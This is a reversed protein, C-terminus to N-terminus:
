QGIVSEISKLPLSVREWLIQPGPADSILSFNLEASDADIYGIDMTGVTQFVPPLWACGPCQSEFVGLPTSQGAALAESDLVVAWVPRDDTDYIYAAAFEDGGQRHIGLGWGSQDENFWQDTIDPDVVANENLDFFSVYEGFAHDDLQWTMLARDASDFSFVVNGVTEFSVPNAPDGVPGRFELIEASIQNGTYQQGSLTQLYYWVPSRDPRATYWTGYLGQRLHLDMGNGPRLPNLWFGEKPTLQQAALDCSATSVQCDDGGLTDSLVANVGPAFSAQTASGLYDVTFTSGCEMTSPFRLTLDVDATAGAALLDVALASQDLVVQDSADSPAPSNPHFFCVASQPAVRPENCSFNLGESFDANQLSVSAGAGNLNEGELYTHAIQLSEEYLVTQMSFIRSSDNFFSVNQWQIVNCGQNPNGNDAPRPCQSFYEHAMEGNLVLDDHFAAIRAGGGQSPQRPYPCVNSFDTGDDQSPDMAIYGNTSVRVQDSQVGYLSFGSGGLEVIAGGDDSSLDGDGDVPVLVTAADTLSVPQYACAIPSASSVTSYGFADTPLSASEGQRFGLIGDVFATDGRNSASLQYSWSEGPEVTADGDGCIETPKAVSVVDLQPADVVIGLGTTGVCGTSDTVALRVNQAGASPYRVSVNQTTADTVGDSDLDWAFVFPGLDSTVVSSIEVGEGAEVASEPGFVSVAPPECGNTGNLTQVATGDPDLWTELSSEPTSGLDFSASLKGYIDSGEEAGPCNFLAGGGLQGVIRNNQNYLPSGSSGQETIGTDWELVEWYTNPGFSPRGFSVPIASDVVADMEIALRKEDGAPHHIGTAMTPSLDRRDWGSFYVGFEAPPVEDLLLLTFDSEPNEAVVEAGAVVDGLLPLATGSENGTRCVDSEYNFYFNASNGNVSCHEATLFYPTGDGRVNNILSGSCFGGSGGNTIVAVSRIQDRVPDGAPCVVDVNCQAAKAVAAENFFRYGYNVQGLELRVSDRLGDPVNLRVRLRSGRFVPTWVEGKLNSDDLYRRWIHEGGADMLELSAGHPLWFRTFGVDVSSAGQAHVSTEWRWMGDPLQTWAGGSQDIGSVFHGKIKHPIAYRPVQEKAQLFDKQLLQDTDLPKLHVDAAADFAAGAAILCALAARNIM